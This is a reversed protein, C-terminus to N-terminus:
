VKNFNRVPIALGYYKATSDIQRTIVNTIDELLIPNKAGVREKLMGMGEITGDKILGSIEARNFNRDTKIPFYNDVIAKEYGDLQLSTENIAKKTTENFFKYAIDAFEKEQTTMDSIIKNIQTPKLVIKKAGQGYSEGYM